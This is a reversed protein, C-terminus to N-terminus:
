HVKSRPKESAEPSAAQAATSSVISFSSHFLTAATEVLRQHDKEFPDTSFVGIVGVALPGEVLPVVLAYRLPSSFTRAVPGLELTADSNIVVQKHAFAWGSIREGIPVSLAGITSAGAGSCAAVDLM